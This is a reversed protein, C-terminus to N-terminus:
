KPIKPPHWNLNMINDMPFDKYKKLRQSLCALTCGLENAWDTISQKKGKWEIFKSNNKKNFGKPSIDNV